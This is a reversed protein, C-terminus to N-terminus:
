QVAQMRMQHLYRCQDPLDLVESIECAAPRRLQDFVFSDHKQTTEVTAPHAFGTIGAFSCRDNLGSPPSGFLPDGFHEFPAAKEHPEPAEPESDIVGPSSCHRGDILSERVFASARAPIATAPWQRLRSLHSLRRPAAIRAAHEISSSCLGLSGPGRASSSAQRRNGMKATNLDVMLFSAM